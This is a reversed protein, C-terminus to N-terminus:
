LHKKKDELSEISDLLDSFQDVKKDTRTAKDLASSISKSM